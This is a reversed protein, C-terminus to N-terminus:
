EVRAGQERGIVRATFHNQMAVLENQMAVFHNQMATPHTSTAAFDSKM